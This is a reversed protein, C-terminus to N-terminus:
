VGISGSTSQPPHELCCQVCHLASFPQPVAPMAFSQLVLPNGTRAFPSLFCRLGWQQPCIAKTLICVLDTNGAAAAQSCGTAQPASTCLGLVWGMPHSAPRPAPAVRPSCASTGHLSSAGACPVSTYPGHVMNAAWAKGHLAGGQRHHACLSAGRGQMCARTQQVRWRRGTDGGM